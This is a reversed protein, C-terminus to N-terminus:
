YYNSLIIFVIAVVAFILGLLNVKSIKEKFVVFGTVSAVAVTGLNSVPFVVSSGWSLTALAKLILIYSLYNPVGLAIGGTISKYHMAFRGKLAEWVLFCTGTVAASLFVFMSFGESGGSMLYHKNAFQTLSDCIGNGIFVLYPLFKLIFGTDNKLTQKEKISSLVVAVIAAAIGAGKLWNLGEHYIAFALMVPFVLSLKSAVSATSVGFKLTTISTLNFVNIFLIGLIIALPFWNSGMISGNLLAQKDPLVFLGCLAATWYNVVIAPFVPIGQREFVKFLLILIAACTFSLVLFVM